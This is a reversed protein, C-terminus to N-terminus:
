FGGWIKIYISLFITNKSKWNWTGLDSHDPKTSCLLSSGNLHHKSAKGTEETGRRKKTPTRLGASTFPRTPVNSAANKRIQVTKSSLLECAFSLTKWQSKYMSWQPLQRRSRLKDWVLLVQLFIYIHLLLFYLLYISLPNGAIPFSLTSSVLQALM